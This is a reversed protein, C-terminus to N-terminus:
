KEFVRPALVGAVIAAAAVAATEVRLITTGMRVGTLGAGDFLAIEEDTWGGEPGILLTIQMSKPREQVVAEVAKAVPQADARTSFYWGVAKDLKELVQPVTMLQDIKMVGSGSQKAAEVAIREWRQLKGKGEPLVVSRATALPVFRHVGLEALKEIMWDARNGKPVAAAVTVRLGHREERIEEISVMVGSPDCREVRGLARVGEDDFVEVQEGTEVRLVDRLHHAEKEGLEIKGEKVRELHVRRMNTM